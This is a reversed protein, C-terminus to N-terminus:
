VAYVADTGENANEVIQDFSNDIVYTDGGKGGILGDIGAGGNLLNDGDNGTIVNTLENGYVALNATGQMFVNELNAGLQYDVSTYVTDFDGENANEVIQDFSNDIMYADNGKGGVLWDIGAGGDM